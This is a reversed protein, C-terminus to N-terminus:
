AAMTRGAASLSASRLDVAPAATRETSPPREQAARGAGDGSSCSALVVVGAVATAFTRRLRPQHVEGDEGYTAAAAM